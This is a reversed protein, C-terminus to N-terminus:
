NWRHPAKIIESKNENMFDMYFKYGSIWQFKIKTM